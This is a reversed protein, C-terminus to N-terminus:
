KMTERDLSGISRRGGAQSKARLAESSTKTETQAGASMRPTHSQRRGSAESQGKGRSLM